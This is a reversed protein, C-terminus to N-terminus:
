KRNISRTEGRFAYGFTFIYAPIRRDAEPSYKPSDSGNVLTVRSDVYQWERLVAEVESATDSAVERSLCRIDFTLRADLLAQSRLGRGGADQVFIHPLEPRYDGSDPEEGSVNDFYQALYNIAEAVPDPLVYIEM